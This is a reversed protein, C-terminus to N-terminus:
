ANFFAPHSRRLFRKLSQLAFGNEDQKAARLRRQCGRVQKNAEV